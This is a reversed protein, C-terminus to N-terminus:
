EGGGELASTGRIYVYLCALPWVFSALLVLTGHGKRKLEAAIFGAVWAYLVLVPVYQM